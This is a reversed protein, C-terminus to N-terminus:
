LSRKRFIELKFPSKTIKLCETNDNLDKPNWTKIFSLLCFVVLVLLLKVMMTSFKILVLRHEKLKKKIAESFVLLVQVASLSWVILMSFRKRIDVAITTM